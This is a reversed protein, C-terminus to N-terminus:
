PVFPSQYQIEAGIIGGGTNTIWRIVYIRVYSGGARGVYGHGPVVSVQEAWGATPIRTVNGLGNVSGVSAFEITCCWAWRAFNNSSNIRFGNSGGALNILGDAFAITGSQMSIRITGPPDPVSNSPNDPDNKDCGTALFMAALIGCVLFLNLKKMFYLNNSAGLGM